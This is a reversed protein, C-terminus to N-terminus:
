DAMGPSILDAERSVGGTALRIREAVLCRVEVAPSALVPSPEGERFLVPLTRRTPVPLARVRDRDARSLRAASGALPGLRWGAERARVEFRGDWIHVRGPELSFLPPPRRGPERALHVHDDDATLSVGGLSAKGGSLDLREVSAARPLDARGSVCAIARALWPSTLPLRVSGSLADVEYEAPPPPRREPGTEIPSGTLARRARVRLQSADANAPDEIWVEGRSRLSDRLAARRVGLLPRFLRLGRGEPWVPSPAWAELRGLTSGHARMWDNEAADDATHAMLIVAAGAERAAEALLRHRAQRAAAPLGTAPKPGTWDLGRWDAGAREAAARAFASWRTSDPNLGHDVTLALLRRGNAQAWDSAMLLLALSDGGGSLALAVPRADHPSLRQDFESFVPGM